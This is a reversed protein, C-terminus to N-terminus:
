TTWPLCFFSNMYHCEVKGREALHSYDRCVSPASLFASKVCWLKLSQLFFFIWFFFYKMGLSVSIFKTNGQNERKARHM